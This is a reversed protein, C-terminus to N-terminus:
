KFLQISPREVFRYILGAVPITLLISLAALLFQLSVANNLITEEPFLRLFFTALAYLILFHVLFFSFSINGLYKLYRNDLIDFFKLHRSYACLGIFIMCGISEMGSAQDYIVMPLLSSRPSIALFISLGLLIKSARASLTEIFDRVNPLLMGLGFFCIYYATAINFTVSLYYIVLLMAISVFTKSKRIILHLLPLISVAIVHYKLVWGVSNMKFELLFLNKLFQEISIDNRLWTHYWPSAAHSYSPSHFFKVYLFILVLVTIHVPFLRSFRKFIFYIYNSFFNYASRVSYKNMSRDLSLGLVFGSLTFFFTVALKGNAFLLMLIRILIEGSHELTNFPPFSFLKKNGDVIFIILSHNLAVGLAALARLGEIKLIFKRERM